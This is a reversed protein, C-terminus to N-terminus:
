ELFASPDGGSDMTQGKSWFIPNRGMTLSRDTAYPKLMLEKKRSPRNFFITPTTSGIGHVVRGQIPFREIRAISAPGSFRTRPREADQEQQGRQHSDVHEAGIWWGCMRAEQGRVDIHDRPATQGEREQEGGVRM